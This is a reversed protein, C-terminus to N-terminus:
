LVPSAARPRPESPSAPVAGPTTSSMPDHTTTTKGPGGASSLRSHGPATSDSASCRTSARVPPAPGARAESRRRSRTPWRAPGQLHPRRRRRPPPWSRRAPSRSGRRDQDDLGAGFVARVLEGVGEGHRELAVRNPAPRACRASATDIETTAAAEGEARRLRARAAEDGGPERRDGARTSTKRPPM